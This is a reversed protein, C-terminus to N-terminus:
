NKEFYRIYFAVGIRYKYVCAVIKRKLNVNLKRIEIRSFMEKVSETRLIDVILEKKKNNNLKASVINGIANSLLFFLCLDIQLTFDYYKYTSFYNKIHTHLLKYDEWKDSVFKHTASEDNMVYHYFAQGKMYYMTNARLAVQAGFFWDESYRVDKIYNLAPVNCVSAKFLCVCNSITIPYEIEKTILLQPYYEEKMQNKDYFGGRVNHTYIDSHTPYDKICDCVVLDCGYCEVCEMMRQYAESEIFDDSDVFTIYEGTAVELGANRATSVGGNAKHIVKVRMDKQAYEDCISPCDDPSGDDVLVLEIDQYTQNLISDVCRHIFKEAKYVPVIISIM